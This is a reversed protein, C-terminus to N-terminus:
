SPAMINDHRLIQRTGHAAAFAFGTACATTCEACWLGQLLARGDGRMERYPAELTGDTGTQPM